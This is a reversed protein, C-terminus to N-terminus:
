GPEPGGLGGGGAPPEAHEVPEGRGPPDAGAGGGGGGRGGGVGVPEVRPRGSLFSGCGSGAGGGAGAVAAAGDPTGVPRDRREPAAAGAGVRAVGGRRAGAAVLDPLTEADVGGIAFWARREGEAAVRVPGLGVPPRGQKTPTPYVPGVCVYDAQGPAGRLQDE